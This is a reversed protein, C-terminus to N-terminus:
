NLLPEIYNKFVSDRYKEAFNKSGSNESNSYDSIIFEARAPNLNEFWDGLQVQQNLKYPINITEPNDTNKSVKLVVNGKNKEVKFTKGLRSSAIIDELSPSLFNIEDFHLISHGGPTLVRYSEEIARLPDPVFQMTAVSYALDVSGTKLPIKKASGVLPKTTEYKDASFLPNLDLGIGFAQSNKAKIKDVLEALARGGGCGIDLITCTKQAIHSALDDALVREVFDLSSHLQDTRFKQQLTSKQISSSM